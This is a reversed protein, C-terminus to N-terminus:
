GLGTLGKVRQLTPFAIERARETGQDLVTEIYAPDATLERYRNRVPELAAIVQEAVTRKLYGYGKGEFRAEIQLRPEGSLVEFLTLLNLVGPSASEFRVDNGSDTTARMVASRIADASDILGVSHGARIEGISKSMKASPDDLGMIRAGSERVLPEPLVFIDGFTRNFRGAIDRALEIHQRQDEGVPVQHTGYLLIDAGQLVPYCLLGASVSEQQASKVKYQTMRELWGTPTLCSLIWALEAHASVTSQVFIISRKPDIGCAIYLAALERSKAHLRQPDVAEPITLTHLDVICFINDYREQNEAWLSLAGVYNGIHLKGTPQIGSFVRQRQAQAQM